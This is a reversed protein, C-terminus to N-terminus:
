YNALSNVLRLKIANKFFDHEMVKLYAGFSLILKELKHNPIVEISFTFGNEDISIKKQSGHLPKTITYPALGPTAVLTIKSFTSEPPISVGSVDDFYENFDIPSVQYKKVIKSFSIIRDLALNTFNEFQPNNGIM